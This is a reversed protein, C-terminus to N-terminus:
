DLTRDVVSARLHVVKEHAVTLQPQETMPQIPLVARIGHLQALQDALLAVVAFLFLQLNVIRNTDIKDALIPNNVLDFFRALHLLRVFKLQQIINVIEFLFADVLHSAFNM